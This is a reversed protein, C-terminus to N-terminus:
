LPLRPAGPLLRDEATSAADGAEEPKTLDADEDRRHDPAARRARLLVAAATSPAGTGAPGGHDNSKM